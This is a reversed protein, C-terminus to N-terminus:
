QYRYLICGYFTTNTTAGAVCISLKAGFYPNDPSFKIPNPLCAPKSQGRLRWTYKKHVLTSQENTDTYDVVMYLQSKTHFLWMYVWNQDVIPTHPGSYQDLEHNTSLWLVTLLARLAGTPKTVIQVLDAGTCQQWRWQWPPSHNIEHHVKTTICGDVLFWHQGSVCAPCAADNIRPNKVYSKTPALNFKNLSCTWYRPM